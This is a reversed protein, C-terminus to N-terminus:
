RRKLLIPAKEGTASQHQPVVFIEQLAAKDMYGGNYPNGVGDGGADTFTVTMALIFVAIAVFWKLPQSATEEVTITRVDIHRYPSYM